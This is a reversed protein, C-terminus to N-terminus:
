RPIGALRSAADLAAPAYRAIADPVVSIGAALVLLGVAVRVSFGIVMLNLAPAARSVVGLLIEVMMLVVVVPMALQIGLMFILGLLRVLAAMGGGALHWQGPPLWEYSRVLVGLLAHHGDVGLFAITALSAYLSAVVNNRAGSQPDVLAAYSLGMQFGAVHGALEAGAVLARISMGLALGVVAEGAIVVVLGFTSGGGAAVPVIPLLVVGLIATLAVRVPAPVFRGGFIPTSIILLGPRVMMVGLTALPLAENM